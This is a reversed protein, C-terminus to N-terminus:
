QSDLRAKNAPRFGDAAFPLSGISACSWRGSLCGSSSGRRRRERWDIRTWAYAARRHLSAEREQDERAMRWLEQAVDKSTSARAQAACLRAIEVFKKYTSFTTEKVVLCFTASPALNWHVIRNRVARRVKVVVFGASGSGPPEKFRPPQWRSSPLLRRANANYPSMAFIVIAVLRAWALLRQSWSHSVQAAVFM